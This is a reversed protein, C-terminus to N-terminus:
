RRVRPVTAVFRRSSSKTSSRRRRRPRHRAPGRLGRGALMPIGMTQFYGPTVTNTLAEDLSGDPRARGDISFTRSPMGHIDLPVSTALAASEVAPLAGAPSRAPARRVRRVRAADITQSQPRAPRLDRAARRRPPLGSRDHAHRQLEQPVDGGRRAGGDRARSRAGAARRADRQARAAAGGARLSAHPDTRSLQLAPPLGISWARCCASRRDRVRPQGLRRQTFFTLELGGPTPLPVARLANTGWVALAAGGLRVSCRSCSIRPSSWASRHAMPGRRAGADRRSGAAARERAGAGSQHHQRGVVVLVLLMVGQLMVLAAMLSQQPGRPSQWQPLVEARITANSDPIPRRWRACPRTSTASRTPARRAPRWIASRWTTASAATRSNARHRRRDVAGRDGAAVSRLDPGHGHGSIRRRSASSRSARPRERALTM